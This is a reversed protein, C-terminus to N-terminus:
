REGNNTRLSVGNRPHGLHREAIKEHAAKGMLGSACMGQATELLEETLRRNPETKAVVM